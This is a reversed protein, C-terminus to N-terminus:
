FEKWIYEKDWPTLIIETSLISNLDILINTLQGERVIIPERNNDQSISAILDTKHYIDIQLGDEEPVMNFSPIYYEEKNNNSVFSASPRYDVKDGSFNGQFDVTSFTEHVIVSFDEDTFGTFSKLNRVRITLSGVKRFIPLIYEADSVQSGIAIDGHFIDDPDISYSAARTSNSLLDIVCDNKYEALISNCNGDINTWSVIHGGKGYLTEITEKKNISTTITEVYKLNDDFIYLYVIGQIESFPLESGTHDYAKVMITITTNCESLDEKICGTVFLLYASILSTYLISYIIRKSSM